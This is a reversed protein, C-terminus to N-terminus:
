NGGCYKLVTSIFAITDSIINDVVTYENPQHAMDEVTSWVVAPMGIERVIAACTGGGIGGCSASVGMEGLSTILNKVVTADSNTPKPADVRQLFEKSIQVNYKKEYYGTIENVTELIENITYSPLIRMDIVFSDSGPMINPSEVNAFKQTLQFTSSPPAFIDNTQNYKDALTEVLEVALKAGIYSANIGLQPMSAHCQKGIVTFKLWAISKEAIEIFTGDSSGADPVIAEDKDSFINRDILAKLGFDSGTEEDSSFIVGLNVNPTINNQTFYLLTFMSSIVAQSNDEVGLGYIKGDKYIPKFPDTDWVSLDGPSVTDIHSIIWLTKDPESSGKLRVIVNLRVGEKVSEDPVEIVEYHINNKELFTMIWKARQYEGTGNNKPNVSPVSSLEIMSNIIEERKNKIQASIESLNM